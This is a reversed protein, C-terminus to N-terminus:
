GARNAFRLHATENLSVLSRTGSRAARVRSVSTYDPVFFLLSDLGLMASLYGNIIGGHCM